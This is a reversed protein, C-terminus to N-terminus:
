MRPMLIDCAFHAEANGAYTIPLRAIKQVTCRVTANKEYYSITACMSQNFMVGHYISVKLNLSKHYKKPLMRGDSLTVAVTVM